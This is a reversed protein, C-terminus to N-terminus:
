EEQKDHHEDPAATKDRLRLQYQEWDVIEDIDQLEPLLTHTLKFKNVQALTQKLVEASGWNIGDFLEVYDQNLGILYYGGDVAPGIVVDYSNLATQAQILIHENLEPCDTGIVIKRRNINTLSLLASKIREGLNDEQAQLRKEVQPAFGDEEIFSSYFVFIVGNFTKVNEKTIALLHKYIDLATEPDTQKAIRTKVQGFVPNRAFIILADEPFM